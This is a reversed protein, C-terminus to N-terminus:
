RNIGAALPALRKFTDKLLSRRFTLILLTMVIQLGLWALFVNMSYSESIVVLRITHVTAHLIVTPWISFGSREFLFALPFSGFLAIVTFALAVPFPNQVFLLLHIATFILLALLGARFFSLGAHRLHGFIFGRFLTEEGIGNLIISGMLIWLWDTRLEMPVSWVLAVVPFFALMISSLIVAVLLARSNAHKWGLASLGRIPNRAFLLREVGLAFTLMAVTGILASWTFDMISMLFTVGFQLIVFMIVAALLILWTTKGASPESAVAPSLKDETRM